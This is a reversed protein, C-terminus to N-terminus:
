VFVKAFKAAPLSNQKGNSIACRCFFDNDWLRLSYEHGGDVSIFVFIFNEEYM